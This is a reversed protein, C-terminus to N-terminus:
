KRTGPKWKKMTIKGDGNADMEKFMKEKMEGHMQGSMQNGPVQEHMKGSHEKSDAYALSTDLAFCTTAFYFIITPYVRNKKM